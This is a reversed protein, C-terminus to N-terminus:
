LDYVSAKKCNVPVTIIRGQLKPFQRKVRALDKKRAIAAFAPGNGSVSAGLAGAGIMKGVLGPDTNLIASAAVGNLIMANWYDGSLAMNWAREFTKSMARLRKPNGRARKNPVYIVAHVDLPSKKAAVLKKARNDTVCFGGYYCACADDYAGTISVGAKISADVGARIVKADDIKKSFLRACALAVATSIASSSKLGYGAPIQTKLSVTIKHSRLQAKSISKEVTMAVLKDGPSNKPTNVIIGNGESKKVIAETVLKVGLTAGKRAAIANVLSVAGNVIACSADAM